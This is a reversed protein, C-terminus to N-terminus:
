AKKALHVYCLAHRGKLISYRMKVYGYSCIIASTQHHIFFYIIWSALIQPTDATDTLLQVHSSRINYTEIPQTHPQMWIRNYYNYDHYNIMFAQQCLFSVLLSCHSLVLLEATAFLGRSAEHRKNAEITCYISQLTRKLNVAACADTTRGEDYDHM